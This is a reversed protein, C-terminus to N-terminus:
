QGLLTKLGTTRAKKSLDTGSTLFTGGLPAGPGLPRKMALERGISPPTPAPPLQTEKPPSPFLGGM